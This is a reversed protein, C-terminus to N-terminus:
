RPPPLIDNVAIADDPFALPAVSDGRATRHHHKYREGKPERFVDVHEHEVDVIWTSVCAAGRTRASSRVRM